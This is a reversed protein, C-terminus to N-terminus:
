RRPNSGPAVGIPDPAPSLTRSGPTSPFLQDVRSLNKQPNRLFEMLRETKEDLRQALTFALQRLLKFAVPRFARRLRNFADLDVQMLVCSTVTEVTASRPAGDILSMEGFVSPAAIETLVARAREAGMSKCVACRGEILIFMAGGTTGERILVAQAQVRVLKSISVIEEMDEPTLERFLPIRAMLGAYVKPDM